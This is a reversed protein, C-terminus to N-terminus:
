GSMRSNLRLISYAQLSQASVVWNYWDHEGSEELFSASSKSCAFFLDCLVDSFIKPELKTFGLTSSFFASFSTLIIFCIFLINHWMEIGNTPLDIAQMGMSFYLALPELRSSHDHLSGHLM